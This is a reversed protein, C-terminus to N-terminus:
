AIPTYDNLARLDTSTITSTAFPAMPPANTTSNEASPSTTLGRPSAPMVDPAGETATALRATVTTAVPTAAAVSRARPIIAPAIPSTTQHRTPVSATFRKPASFPDIAVVPRHTTVAKESHATNRRHRRVSRRGVRRCVLWRGGVDAGQALDACALVRQSEAEAGRDRHHGTDDSQQGAVPETAQKQRKRRNQRRRKRQELFLIAHGLGHGVHASGGDAGDRHKPKRQNRDGQERAHVASRDENRQAHPDDGAERHIRPQAHEGPEEALALVQGFDWCRFRSGRQFAQTPLTPGD